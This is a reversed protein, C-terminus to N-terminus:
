THVEEHVSESLEAQNVVVTAQYDVTRKKIHDQVFTSAAELEWLPADETPPTCNQVSLCEGGRQSNDKADALGKWNVYSM